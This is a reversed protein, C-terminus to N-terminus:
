PKNEVPDLTAALSKFLRLITYRMGVAHDAGELVGQQVYQLLDLCEQIADVRWDRGNGPQLECGYKAVGLKQRELLAHIIGEDEGWCADALSSVVSIGFGRVPAPQETNAAEALTYIKM